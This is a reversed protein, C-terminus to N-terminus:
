AMEYIHVVQKYDKCECIKSWTCDDELEHQLIWKDMEEMGYTEVEPVELNRSNWYRRKSKTNVVLDKTIYKLIYRGARLSDKVATATTWGLKYRGFLYIPEKSRKFRKRGKSDTWKKIVTKGTDRIDMGDCNSFLGHFHYAGDKHREPVVIYCMHPCHRKKMDKLWQSLKKACEDYNYRDVKEKSFTFTLFWEWQNSRVIEYISNITRKRSVELSRELDKFDHMTKVPNNTFPDIEPIVVEKEKENRDIKELIPKHYVRVQTTLDPYKIVKVNYM